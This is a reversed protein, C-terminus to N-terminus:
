FSQLLEFQFLMADSLAGDTLDKLGYVPFRLSEIREFPDIFM